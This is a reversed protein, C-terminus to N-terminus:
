KEAKSAREARSKRQRCRDTGCTIQGSKEPFYLLHCYPCRSVARRNEVTRACQYWICTALDPCWVTLRPRYAEQGLPGPHSSDFSGGTRIRVQIRSLRSDIVSQLASTGARLIRGDDLGRSDKRPASHLRVPEGQLEADRSGKSFRVLERVREADGESLARYLALAAHAARSEAKFDGVEMPGESGYLLGHSGIWGLIRELPPKGHSFLRAFGLFLDRDTLPAYRKLPPEDDFDPYSKGGWARYDPRIASGDPQYDPYITSPAADAFDGDQSAEVDRKRV